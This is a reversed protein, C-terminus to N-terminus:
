GREHSAPLGASVALAHEDLLVRQGQMVHQANDDCTPAGTSAQLPEQQFGFGSGVGLALLNLAMAGRWFVHRLSYM